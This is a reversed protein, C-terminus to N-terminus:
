SGIRREIRWWRRLLVFRFAFHNLADPPEAIYHDLMLKRLLKGLEHKDIAPLAGAAAPLRELLADFGCPGPAAALMDLIARAHHESKGYYADLRNDFHRMEWPDAPDRLVADVRQEVQQPSAKDDDVMDAVLKHIYFAIGGTCQYLSEATAEPDDAKLSEGELLLRALMVASDHDLPPVDVRRMDNVPRVPKGDEALQDLVHHFGISGTYVMRIQDHQQRADRLTNLLDMVARDGESAKIAQLMWPMEDWFFVVREETAAVLESFCGLLIKRWAPKAVEPIKVGAIEVGAAMSIISRARTKFSKGKEPIAADIHEILEEIFGLTTSVGGVEMLVTRTGAPATAIMKRVVTTKGLRRENELRISQGDLYRWCRAVLLDRGIAQAASINGGPNARLGAM